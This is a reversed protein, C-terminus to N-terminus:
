GDTTEEPQQAELQTVREVLSGILAHHIRLLETLETITAEAEAWQEELTVVKRTKDLGDNAAKAGKIAADKSRAVAAAVKPDALVEASMDKTARWADKWSSKPETM